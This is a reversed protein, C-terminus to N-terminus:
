ENQINEDDFLFAIEIECKTNVREITTLLM